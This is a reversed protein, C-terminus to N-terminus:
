GQHGAILLALPRRFARAGRRVEIAHHLFPRLDTDLHHVIENEAQRIGAKLLHEGGDDMEHFARHEDARAHKVGSRARLAIALAQLTAQQM